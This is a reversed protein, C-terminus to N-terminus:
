KGIGQENELARSWCGSDGEIMFMIMKDDAGTERGEHAGIVTGAQTRACYYLVSDGTIRIRMLWLAGRGGTGQKMTRQMIDVQFCCALIDYCSSM